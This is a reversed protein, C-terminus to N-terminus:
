TCLIRMHHILHSCTPVIAVENYAKEGRLTSNRLQWEQGVTGATKFTQWCVSSDSLSFLPKSFSAVFNDAM